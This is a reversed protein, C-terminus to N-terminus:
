AAAQRLKKTVMLSLQQTVTQRIEIQHNPLEALQVIADLHAQVVDRNLAAEAGVGKLYNFLSSAASMLLRDKMDGALASLQGCTLCLDRMADANAPTLAQLLGSIRECYMRALGKRIQVDPADAKAEGKDFLRRRPGDYTPDNRRRRSPGTYSVSEVFERRRAKAEAVHKLITATSFPRLLFEDIGAARAREIDGATNRAAAMIIPLTRLPEGAEGARIRKVLDLGQGDGVDWDVVLVDPQFLPLLSLCHQPTEAYEIRVRGSQRLMDATLRRQFLRDDVVLIRLPVEETEDARM